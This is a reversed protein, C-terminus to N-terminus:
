KNGGNEIRKILNKIHKYSEKVTLYQKGGEGVYTIKTYDCDTEWIEANEIPIFLKTNSRTTLEIHRSM